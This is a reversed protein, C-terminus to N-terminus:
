WWLGRHKRYFYYDVGLCRGAGLWGLTLHLILMVSDHIEGPTPGISWLLNIGLLIALISAPRVLYGFVYSFGIIFQAVLLSTAFVQWNPIVLNTLFFQYWEPATNKPMYSRIQEALYANDLFRANLAQIAQNLYFYGLYVRLFAIPFLHGVYKISEFFALIM